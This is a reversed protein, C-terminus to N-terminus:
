CSIAKKYVELTNRATTEWTFHKAREVGKTSMELILADDNWVSWIREAMDEESAPDFLGGANGVVEPMSSSNSCLVPCGCAMAEVLPIGFGEFLSPFVLLRALSYLTPLEEYPIYGLLKVQETLRLRDIENGVDDHSQKPVGTLVLDGDFGYRDMIIRIAALLRKHNKHPWTAAPYYLFPRDLGYKAKVEHLTRQEKVPQYEADIGLYVVDIKQPSEGYREVLCQKTFESIAIIRNAAAVSVRYERDRRKLKRPSFFEPFFEHQMDHFTLVSPRKLGMPYMFTFPFHILDADLSTMSWKVYDISFAKKLFSLVHRRPDNKSYKRIIFLDTNTSFPTLESAVEDLCAVTFCFGDDLRQLNEYLKRFYTETGGMKGPAFNLANLAIKM